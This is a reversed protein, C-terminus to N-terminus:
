VHVLRGILAMVLAGVALISAVVVAGALWSWRVRHTEIRRILQANQDALAKILESSALMQAHLDDIAAEMGAVRLELAVIAQSEPSSSAPAPAAPEPSTVGPPKRGVSNWLKKAGEAVKPANKIVDTWPVSQLVTLWPLPM